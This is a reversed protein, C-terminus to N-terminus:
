LEKKLNTTDRAKKFIVDKNRQYYTVRTNASM